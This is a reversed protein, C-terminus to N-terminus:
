SKAAPSGSAVLHFLRKPAVYGDGSSEGIGLFGAQEGYIRVWGPATGAPVRVAQGRCLYYAAVDNIRVAPMHALAQDLPLLLRDLEEPASRELQEITVANEIRLGGVATRRLSEVHAGCGLAEGLEHALGRVYFGSSCEITLDVHEADVRRWDLRYVRVRRPAREVEIGQRALKYLPTGGQKVASFMPPVQDWEGRFRVAAAEIQADAVAVPRRVTVQGDADGSDTSEGLKLRTDYTKDAELFYGSIKTAEGLCLPLLGTAIPDLSGTHGAKQARFLHKVQQLAGNSTIGRPKDLLLM